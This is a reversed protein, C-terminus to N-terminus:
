ASIGQLSWYMRESECDEGIALLGIQCRRRRRGSLSPSPPSPSSTTTRPIGSCRPRGLGTPGQLLTYFEKGGKEEEVRENSEGERQRKRREWSLNFLPSIDHYLHTSAISFFYAL